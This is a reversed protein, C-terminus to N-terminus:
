KFLKKLFPIHEQKKGYTLSNVSGKVILNQTKIDLDVVTLNEGKLLISNNTLSASVQKADFSEVNIVGVITTLGKEIHVSHEKIIQEM